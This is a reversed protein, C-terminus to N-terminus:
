FKIQEICIRIFFGFCFVSYLLKIFGSALLGLLSGFASKFAKVSKSKNFFEGIMAGLFPGLLIGGPIPIFIGIILGVSTGTLGYKSSGFKKAAVVPVFFDLITIIIATALILILILLNFNYLKFFYLVLFGLGSMIPGPLIPLFSGIIGAIMFLGSIFLVFVDM